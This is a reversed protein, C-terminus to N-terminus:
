FQRRVYSKERMKEVHSYDVVTTCMQTTSMAISPRRELLKIKTESALQVGYLMPICRMHSASTHTFQM